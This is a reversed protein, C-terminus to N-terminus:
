LSLLCINMGTRYLGFAVDETADVPTDRAHTDCSGVCKMQSLRAKYSLRIHGRKQCHHCTANRFRCSESRDQMSGCPKCKDPSKSSQEVNCGSIVQQVKAAKCNAHTRYESEKGNWRYYVQWTGDCLDFREKVPSSTPNHVNELTIWLCCRFNLTASFQAM